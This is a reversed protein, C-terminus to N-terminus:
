CRTTVPLLRPCLFLFSECLLPLLPVFFACSTFPLPWVTSSLHTIQYILFRFPFSHFSWWTKKGIISLCSVHGGWQFQLMVLSPFYLYLFMYSSLSYTLSFHFRSLLIQLNPSQFPHHTYVILLKDHIAYSHYTILENYLNCSWIQLLM